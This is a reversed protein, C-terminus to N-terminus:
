DEDTVFQDYLFKRGEAHTWSCADSIAEMQQTWLLSVRACVSDHDNWFKGPAPNDTEWQRFNKDHFDILPALREVAFARRKSLDKIALMEAFAANYEILADSILTSRWNSPDCWNHIVPIGVIERHKKANHSGPLRDLAALATALKWRPQKRETADPPVKRLARVITARDRELMEALANASFTQM